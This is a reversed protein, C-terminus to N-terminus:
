VKLANKLKCFFLQCARLQFTHAYEKEFKEFRDELAFQLRHHRALSRSLHNNQKRCNKKGQPHYQYTRLWGGRISRRGLCHRISGVVLVALVIRWRHHRIAILGLRRLLVGLQPHEVRACLLTRKAEHWQWKWLFPIQVPM